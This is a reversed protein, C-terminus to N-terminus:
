AGEGIPQYGSSPVQVLWRDELRLASLAGGWVCGSDLLAFRESLRLGLASWHGCVIAPEDDRAPRADYWALFGEPPVTGGAKLAM